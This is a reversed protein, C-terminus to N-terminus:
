EDLGEAECYLTLGLDYARKYNSGEAPDIDRFRDHSESDYRGVHLADHLGQSFAPSAIILDLIQKPNM